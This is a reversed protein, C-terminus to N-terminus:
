VSESEYTIGSEELKRRMGANDRMIKELSSDIVYAVLDQKVANWVGLYMKAIFTLLTVLTGCIAGSIFANSQILTNM